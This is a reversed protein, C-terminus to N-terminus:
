KPANTVYQSGFRKKLHFTTAQQLSNWITNEFLESRSWLAGIPARQDPDPSNSFSNPTQPIGYCFKYVNGLNFNQSPGFHLVTNSHDVIKDLPSLTLLSLCLDCVCLVELIIIDCILSFILHMCWSFIHRREVIWM